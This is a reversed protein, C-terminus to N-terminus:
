RDLRPPVPPLPSYESFNGSLSLSTLFPFCPEVAKEPRTHRFRGIHVLQRSLQKFFLAEDPGDQRDILYLLLHSPELNGTDEEGDLSLLFLLMMKCHLVSQLVWPHVGLAHSMRGRVM